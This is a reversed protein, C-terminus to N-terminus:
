RSRRLAYMLLVSYGFFLFAAFPGATPASLAPVFLPFTSMVVVEGTMGAVSFAVAAPLVSPRDLATLRSLGAFLVVFAGCMALSSVTYIVLGRELFLDGIWGLMLTAVLWVALGAAIWFVIKPKNSVTAATQETDPRTKHMANAM